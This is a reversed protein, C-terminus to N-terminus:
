ALLGDVVRGSVDTLRFDRGLHRFTLREHDIGLLHLITAQLDHVHVPDRVVNLGLEDTVGFQLGARVGGGALWVTFATRLHDRGLQDKRREGQLMPTRGFEGAFVVLTDDLLGRAQLDLVLAASAQDVERCREPLNTLLNQDGTGGQHDWGGHVLHQLAAARRPPARAPLQARVVGARPERRVPRPDDQERQAPRRRGADGGAHPCGPEYVALEYGIEPDGTAAHAGDLAVIADLRCRACRRRLSPDGLSSSLTALSVAVSSCAKTACPLFGSGWRSAGAAAGAKGPPCAYRASRRERQRARLQALRGHHPPPRVRRHISSCSRRCTPQASTARADLHVSAVRDSSRATTPLLESLWARQHRALDEARSGPPRAKGDGLFAVFRDQRLLSPPVFQDDRADLQSFRRAFLDVQSPAGVM